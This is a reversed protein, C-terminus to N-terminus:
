QTTARFIWLLTFVTERKMLVAAAIEEPLSKAEQVELIFSGKSILM